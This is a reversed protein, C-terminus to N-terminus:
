AAPPRLGLSELLGVIETLREFPVLIHNWAEPDFRVAEGLVYHRPRLRVDIMGYRCRLRDLQRHPGEALVECFVVPRDSAVVDAAGALVRHEATEVDIKIVDVPSCRSREVYADLSITRVDVVESHAPRFTLSLSASTEVTGHTDAPIYLTTSGPQRCVAHPQLTIRHAWGNAAVNALCIAAAPAYPEFAHVHLDPRVAAALLSYFGTNCGVDLM